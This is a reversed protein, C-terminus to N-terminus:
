RAGGKGDTGQKPQIPFAKKLFEIGVIILGLTIFTGGMGIIMLTLGFTLDGM